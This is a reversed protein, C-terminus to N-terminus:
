IGSLFTFLFVKEKEFSVQHSETLDGQIKKTFDKYKLRKLIFDSASRLKMNQYCSWVILMSHM